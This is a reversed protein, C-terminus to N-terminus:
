TVSVVTNKRVSASSVFRHFKRFQVMPPLGNLQELQLAGDGVSMKIRVFVFMCRITLDVNILTADM